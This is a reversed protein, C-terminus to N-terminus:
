HASLFNGMVQFSTKVKSDNDVHHNPFSLIAKFNEALGGTYLIIKEMLSYDLEPYMYLNEFCLKYPESM